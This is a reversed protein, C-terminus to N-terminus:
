KDFLKDITDNMIETWNMYEWINSEMRGDAADNMLENMRKKNYYNLTYSIKDGSVSLFQIEVM